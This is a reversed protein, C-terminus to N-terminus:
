TVCFHCRQTMMLPVFESIFVAGSFQRNPSLCHSRFASEVQSLIYFDNIYSFGIHHIDM